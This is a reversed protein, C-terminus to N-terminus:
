GRKKKLRRLEARFTYEQYGEIILWIGIALCITTGKAISFYSAVNVFFIDIVLLQFASIIIFCLFLLVILGKVSKYTHNAQFRYCRRLLAAYLTNSPDIKILEKIVYISENIHSINYLSAAKKFLLLSFIDKDQFTTVNEIISWEIFTDVKSLFRDYRGVEFLALLYDLEVEVKVDEVLLDFSAKNTEYFSIKESYSKSQINFYDLFATNPNIESM